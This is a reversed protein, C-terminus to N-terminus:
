IRDFNPIDILFPMIILRVTRMVFQIDLIPRSWCIVGYACCSIMSIRNRSYEQEGTETISHTLCDPLLQKPKLKSGLKQFNWSGRSQYEENTMWNICVPIHHWLFCLKCQGNLSGHCHLIMFCRNWAPQWM